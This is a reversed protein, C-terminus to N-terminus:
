LRGQATALDPKGQVEQEPLVIGKVSFVCSSLATIALITIPIRKGERDRLEYNQHIDLFDGFQFTM